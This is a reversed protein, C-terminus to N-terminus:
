RMTLLCHQSACTVVLCLQITAMCQRAPHQHRLPPEFMLLTENGHWVPGDMRGDAPGCCMRGLWCGALLEAYRQYGLWVPSLLLAANAASAASRSEEVRLADQGM